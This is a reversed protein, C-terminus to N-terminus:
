YATWQNDEDYGLDYFLGTGGRYRRQGSQGRRAPVARRNSRCQGDRQGGRQGGYGVGHSRRSSGDDLGNATHHGFFDCAPDLENREVAERLDPSVGSIESRGM